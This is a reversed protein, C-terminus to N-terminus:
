PKVLKDLDHQTLTPASNTPTVTAPAPGASEVLYYGVLVLCVVVFIRLPTNAPEKKQM